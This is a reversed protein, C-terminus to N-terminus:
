GQSSFSIAAHLDTSGESLHLKILLRTRIVAYIDWTITQRHRHFFTAVYHM